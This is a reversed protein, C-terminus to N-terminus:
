DTLIKFVAMDKTRCVPQFVAPDYNNLLYLRIFLSNEMRDELVTFRNEQRILTLGNLRGSYQVTNSGDPNINIVKKLTLTRRNITVTKQEPNYRIMIGKRQIKTPTSLPRIIWSSDPMKKGLGHYWFRPTLKSGSSIDINSYQFIAYLTPEMQRFLFLYRAPLTPRKFEASLPAPNSLRAYMGQLSGYKQIATQLAPQGPKADLLLPLMTAMRAAFKQDTSLLLQSVGYSDYKNKGNDVITKLGTHFWLPWGYDWWAVAYDQPTKQRAIKELEPIQMATIAPYVTTSNYRGARYLSFGGQALFFLAVVAPFWRRSNGTFYQRGLLLFVATGFPLIHAAYLYFRSGSPIGLLGLGLVPLLLLSSRRERFLRILGLIGPFVLPLSGSISSLFVSLGKGHSESVLNMGQVFAYKRSGDGLTLADPRFIYTKLRVLMLQFQDTFLLLGASGALLLMWWIKYPIRIRPLLAYGCGAAALNLYWPLPSLMMGWLALARYGAENKRQFLLIYLLFFGVQAYLLTSSAHYWSRYLLIALIGPITEIQKGNRLFRIMSLALMLPFFTNLMDTDFYGAHSRLYYAPIFSAVLAAPFIVAGLRLERGILLMPLLFLPALLLPLWYLGSSVPAVISFLRLLKAPLYTAPLETGQLLANAQAGYLGADHTLIPAFGTQSNYFTSNGATQLPLLLRVLIAGAFVVSLLLLWRKLPMPETEPIHIESLTSRIRDPITRTSM